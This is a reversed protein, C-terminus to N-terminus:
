NLTSWTTNFTLYWGDDVITILQDVKQQLTIWFLYTHLQYYVNMVTIFFFCGKDVIKFSTMM